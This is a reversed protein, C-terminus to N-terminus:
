FVQLIRKLADDEDDDRKRKVSSLVEEVNEEIQKQPKKFCFYKAKDKKILTPQKKKKNIEEAFICSKIHYTTPSYNYKNVVHWFDASELQHLDYDNFQLDVQKHLRYDIFFILYFISDVLEPDHCVTFYRLL